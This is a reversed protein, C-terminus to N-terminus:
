IYTHILCSYIYICTVYGFHTYLHILPPDRFVFKTTFIHYMDIYIKYPLFIESKLDDDHAVSSVRYWTETALTLRLM